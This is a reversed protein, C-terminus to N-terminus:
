FIIPEGKTECSSDVYDNKDALYYDRGEGCYLKDRQGGDGTGDLTDIGDGGYLVDEGGGGYMQEEIGDGGYFVVQSYSAGVSVVGAVENTEPDVKFLKGGSSVWVAGEGVAVGDAGDSMADAPIPIRAAVRNTEPDVRSLKENEPKDDAPSFNRGAVWVAGSSEDVAIDDAGRDVDIKAVVEGTQPDIRSLTGSNM